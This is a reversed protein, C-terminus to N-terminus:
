EGLPALALSPNLDDLLLAMLNAVDASALWCKRQTDRNEMDGSFLCSMVQSFNRMVRTTLNERSPMKMYSFHQNQRLRLLMADYMKRVASERRQAGETSADRDAATGLYFVSVRKGHLLSAMQILDDLSGPNVAVMSYMAKAGGKCRRARTVLTVPFGQRRQFVLISVEDVSQPPRAQLGCSRYIDLLAKSSIDPTKYM